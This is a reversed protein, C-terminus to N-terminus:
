NTTAPPTYQNYFSPNNLIAELVNNFSGLWGTKNATNWQSDNPASACMTDNPYKACDKVSLGTMLGMQRAVLANFGTTTIQSCALDSTFCSAKFVMFFQRKYASNLVVVANPDPVTGGLKNVVFDSFDSDPWILIFSKFASTSTTASISPTLVSEDVVHYNFYGAGLNSNASIDDLAAQVKAKQFENNRTPYANNSYAFYIERDMWRYDPSVVTTNNAAKSCGFLAFSSFILIAIQKMM